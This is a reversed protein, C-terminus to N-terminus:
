EKTMKELDLDKFKLTKGLGNKLRVHAEVDTTFGKMSGQSVMKLVQGLGVNEGITASCPLTYVKSCKKDITLSDAKYTAMDEGNYKLVGALDTITFALTPNDIGIALVADASRFGRPAFSDLGVSTVKIDKMKNISSCSPALCLMAM